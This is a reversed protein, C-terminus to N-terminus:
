DTALLLPRVRGWDNWLDALGEARRGLAEVLEGLSLGAASQALFEDAAVTVEAMLRPMEAETPWIRIRMPDLGAYGVALSLDRQSPVREDAFNGLGDFRYGLSALAAAIERNQAQTNPGWFPHSHPFDLAVADIARAVIADVLDALIHQWRRRLEPDEGALRALLQERAPRDGRLIRLIAAEGSGRISGAPEWEDAPQGAALPAAHSPDEDPAISRRSERAPAGTGGASEPAEAAEVCAAVAERAALCAEAASEASIRAADAELSMREISSVLASAAEREHLVATTAEHADHNIRNIEQLWARAAAEIEERSGARERARHFAVQAREKAERVSRPDAIGAAQAARAVHADYTRQADRVASLAAEAQQRAREALACREDALRREEACAGTPDSRIDPAAIGTSTPPRSEDTATAVTATEPRDLLAVGGGAVRRRGPQAAAAARPAGRFAAFFEDREPQIPIGVSLRSGTVASAGAITTRASRGGSPTTPATAPVGIQVSTGDQWAKSLGGAGTDHDELALGVLPPAFPDTALTASRRRPVSDRTVTLRVERRAPPRARLVELLAAGAAVGLALGLALFAFESASM